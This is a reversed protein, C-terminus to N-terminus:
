IEALIEQRCEESIDQNCFPCLEYKSLIRDLKQQAEKLEEISKKYDTSTLGILKEIRKLDIILNSISDLSSISKEARSLLRAAKRFDIDCDDISLLQTDINKLDGLLDNIRNCGDQNKEISNIAKEVKDVDLKEVEILEKTAVKLKKSVEGLSENSQSVSELQDFIINCKKLADEATERKKIEEDLSEFKDLSKRIDRLAEIKEKASISSSELKESENLLKEAKNALELKEDVGLYVKLEENFREVDEASQRMKQECTSKDSALVRILDECGSLGGVEDLVAAVFSPSSSKGEVEDILFHKDRQDSWNFRISQGAVDISKLGLVEQAQPIAGSGPNTLDLDDGESDTIKWENIGKGGRKAYVSGRSSEVFVESFKEGIRVPGNIGNKKNEGAAWVGYAALELARLSASKGNNSKGHIVNLGPGFTLTTDKHAEFDKIRLSKIMNKM